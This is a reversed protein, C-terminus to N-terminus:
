NLNEVNVPRNPDQAMFFAAAKLEHPVRFMVICISFDSRESTPIEMKKCIFNQNEFSVSHELAIEISDRHVALKEPDSGKPLILIQIAYFGKKAPFELVCNANSLAVELWSTFLHKEEETSYEIDPAQMVPPADMLLEGDNMVFTVLHYYSGDILQSAEVHMPKKRDGSTGIKTLHGKKEIFNANLTIHDFNDLSYFDPFFSVSGGSNLTLAGLIKYDGEMDVFLPIITGPNKKEDALRSLTRIYITTQRDPRINKTILLNELTLELKGM